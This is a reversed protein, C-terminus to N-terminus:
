HIQTGGGPFTVVKVETGVIAQAIQGVEGTLKAPDINVAEMGEAIDSSSRVSSKM